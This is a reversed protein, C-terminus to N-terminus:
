DAARIGNYQLAKIGRQVKQGVENESLEPFICIKTGHLITYFGLSELCIEREYIPGLQKKFWRWVKTEGKEGALLNQSHWGGGGEEEECM